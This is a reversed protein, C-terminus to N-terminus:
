LIITNLRHFVENGKKEEAYKSDFFKQKYQRHIKEFEKKIEKM